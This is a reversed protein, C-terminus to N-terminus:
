IESNLCVELVEKQNTMLEAQTSKTLKNSKSIMKSLSLLPISIDSARELNSEMLRVDSRITWVAM